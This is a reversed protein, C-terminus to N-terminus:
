LVTIFIEIADGWYGTPLFSIRDGMLAVLLAILLQFILRLPASIEKVDNVVGLILILTVGTLVPILMSISGFNFLIGVLLGFYVAVGGLLPTPVNHIKRGGPIDMVGFRIAFKRLVPISAYAALFSILFTLYYRM